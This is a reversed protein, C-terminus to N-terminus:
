IYFLISDFKIITGITNDTNPKNNMNTLIAHTLFCLGPFSFICSIELFMLSPAIANKLASYLNNDIKTTIAETANNPIEIATAVVCQNITGANITPATKEAKAPFM